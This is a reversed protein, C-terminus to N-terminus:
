TLEGAIIAAKIAKQSRHIAIWSTCKVCINNRHLPMFIGCCDCHNSKLKATYNGNHTQNNTKPSTAMKKTM